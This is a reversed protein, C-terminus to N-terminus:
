DFACPWDPSPKLGAPLKTRADGCTLDVQQQVLGTAHTLDLGEIRTLYLFANKFDVPGDFRARNLEARALNALAFRSGTLVAKGFNARGLEAKEFNAGTLNASTFDARQLEASAFSAGQASVGAFSTRYGEVRAFNAGDARTGALSARVLTAKELNASRLDSGRLDTSTFDTGFLNASSLESNQLLLSSKNCEQWVVGPAPRSKCDAAAVPGCTLLLAAGIALLALRRQKGSAENDYEWRPEDVEYRAPDRSM